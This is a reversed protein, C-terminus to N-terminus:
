GGYPLCLANACSLVNLEENDLNQYIVIPTGDTRMVASNKQGVVGEGIVQRGVTTACAVDLCKIM